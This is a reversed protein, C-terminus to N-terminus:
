RILRYFVLGIFERVASSAILLSSASPLFDLFSYEGHSFAYYNAPYPVVDLGVKKFSEVSRILHYASTVLIPSEFAYKGCIIKTFAANEYTDRSKDELVIKSEEIGLDVLFRKVIPAEANSQDRIKGGSIIIPIALKRQLRVATIIRAYMENTPVGNGSLDPVEDIIGGGLLVIVDGKITEPIRYKSELNEMLFNSFPATCIVWFVFALALNFVGTRRKRAFILLSGYIILILIFIGPPLLFPAIIKRLIFM